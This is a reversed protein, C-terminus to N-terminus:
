FQNFRGTERKCHSNNATGFDPMDFQEKPKTYIYIHIYTCIYLFIHVTAFYIASSLIMLAVNTTTFEEKNRVNKAISAVQFFQTTM